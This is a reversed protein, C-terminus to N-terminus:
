LMLSSTADRGAGFVRRILRRLRPEPVCLALHRSGCRAEPLRGDQRYVATLKSAPLLAQELGQRQRQQNNRAM